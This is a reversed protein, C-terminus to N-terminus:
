KSQSNYHVVAYVAASLGVFMVESLWLQQPSMLSLALMSLVASGAAVAVLLMLWMRLPHVVCRHVTVGVCAVLTGTTLLNKDAPRGVQMALVVVCAHFPLLAGVDVVCCLAVASLRRLMDQADVRMGGGLGWGNDLAVEVVLAVVVVLQLMRVCAQLSLAWPMAARCADMPLGTTRM